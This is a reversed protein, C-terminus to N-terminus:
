QVSISPMTITHISGGDMYWFSIPPSQRLGRVQATAPLIQLYYGKHELTKDIEVGAQMNVIAAQQASLPVGPRISGFNLGENIPDQLAREVMAYGEANYPLSNVTSLLTMLALQFQSNLRIQNIYPDSWAWQGPVQGPEMLVFQDNATAFRAYFNYGNAILNEYSTVDIVDPELGSQHKHAFTIRGNTRTFEISAVMGCYFAAKEFSPYICIVGDYNAVLCLPGFSTTNSGQVATTDSDWAVYQYRQNQSNAWEAFLIKDATVPEFVTM